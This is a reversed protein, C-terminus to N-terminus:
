FFRLSEKKNNQGLYMSLLVNDTREPLCVTITVSNRVKKLCLTSNKYQVKACRNIEFLSINTSKDTWSWYKNKRSCEPPGNPYRLINNPFYINVPITTNPSSLM